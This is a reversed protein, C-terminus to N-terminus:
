EDSWDFSELYLPFHRPRSSHHSPSINLERDLFVNIHHYPASNIVLEGSLHDVNKGNFDPLITVRPNLYEVGRSPGLCVQKRAAASLFEGGQTAGGPLGMAEGPRVYNVCNVGSPWADSDSMSVWWSVSVWGESYAVSVSIDNDPGQLRNKIATYKLFAEWLTYCSGHTRDEEAWTLGM